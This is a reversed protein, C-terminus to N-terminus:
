QINNVIAEIGSPRNLQINEVQTGNKYTTFVPLNKVTGYERAEPFKEADVMVFLTDSYQEALQKFKPKTMRCNGCWPAGYQIIVKQNENIIKGLDDGEKYEVLM